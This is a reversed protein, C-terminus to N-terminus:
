DTFPDYRIRDLGVGDLMLGSVTARIMSPSGALLIDYDHWDGARRLVEPLTGPEARASLPDSECVGGVELWEQGRALAGFRDLAYLDERSRGGLLVTVPPARDPDRALDECLALMPAAGTGGAVMLVDRDSSPDLRLRGAAPGIRWQDGPSTHAVMARSVWGGEVARVHFEIRGDARPAIAPSLARWMRPRAPIEVSVYEGAEYEVPAHPEVTIVALDWTLRQHGVVTATTTAPADARRLAEEIPGAALSFAQAWARETTADWDPGAYHRMAGILAVGLSEYQAPALGLGHHERVLPDLLTRLEEPRDVTSMPLVLSRVLRRAPVGVHAPFLARSGPDLSFLLAAFWAAIEDVRPELAAWTTQVVAAAHADSGPTPAIPGSELDERWAHRGSSVPAAPPPPVAPVPPPAPLPPPAPVVATTPTSTGPRNTARGPDPRAPPPPVTRGSPPGAAGVRGDREHAPTEVTRADEDGPTTTPATAPTATTPAATPLVTTPAVPEADLLGTPSADPPGVGFSAAGLFGADLSGADYARAERPRADHADPPGAGLFGADHPGADHPGADPPRVDQAPAPDVAHSADTEVPATNAFREDADTAATEPAPPPPVSRVAALRSPARRSRRSPDPTGPDDLTEASM